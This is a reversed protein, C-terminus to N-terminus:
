TISSTEPGVSDPTSLSRTSSGSCTTCTVSCSALASLATCATPTTCRSRFGSLMRTVPSRSDASDLTGATFTSSKPMALDLSGLACCLVTVPEIMPVGAYM